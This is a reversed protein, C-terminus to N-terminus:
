QHKDFTKNFAENKFVLKKFSSVYRLDTYINLLNWYIRTVIWDEKQDCLNKKLIPLM